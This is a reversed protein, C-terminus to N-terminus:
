IHCDVLTLTWKPNATDLFKEKFNKRWMEYEEETESSIGWWGMKGPSYWAGNPTIVSYTCFDKMQEFDISSVQASDCRDGDKTIISEEWRGGISYWDWKSNPNYNSFVSGDAQIDESSEYKIGEKYCEEDSWELEKPFEVTIYKIHADNECESIYKEKDSLYNAYFTDKYKQIEQRVRSIIEEKSIYHPFRIKEDYPALLEDVTSNEDTFVAVTFHSM